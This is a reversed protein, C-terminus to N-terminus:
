APEPGINELRLRFPYTPHAYAINGIGTGAGQHALAITVLGASIHGSGVTFMEPNNLSGYTRSPYMTPSGESPPTAGESTAYEAIAGANDLLVWDLFHAGIYMCNGCVRIRDGAVAAIACQLKTGASTQVVTWSAAAPLGSLNDDTIRVRATRISTGGGSAPQWTAASASTATLVQGTSPTGSVAIGGVKAVSPNPYTGSLDGSATGTPTRADALRVDNGAAATGATTGYTVALSRDAALTGGGTLGTGATVQRSTPVFQATTASSLQPNPYTGTLAGSAPGTPPLSQGTGDPASVPALQSLDVTPGLTSPLDICYARRRGNTPHEDVLWRWGTPQIDPDDNCLLAVSLHGTNDLTVPGGGSYIAHQTSDVLVATPTLTVQGTRATGGVPVPFTGTLTITSAGVPFPM